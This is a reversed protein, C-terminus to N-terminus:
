NIVYSYGVTLAIVLIIDLQYEMPNTHRFANKTLFIVSFVAAIFAGVITAFKSFGKTEVSNQM